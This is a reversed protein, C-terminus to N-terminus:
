RRSFRSKRGPTGARSPLVDDDGRSWSRVPEPAVPAAPIEAILEALDPEPEAPAASLAETLASALDDDIRRRSTPDVHAAMEREAAPADAPPGPTWNAFAQDLHAEDAWEPTTTPAPAPASGAYVDGLVKSLDM